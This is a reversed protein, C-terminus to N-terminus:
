VPPPLDEPVSEAHEAVLLPPPRRRLARRLVLWLVGGVVGLVLLWPALAVAVLVLGKGTLVLADISGHFTRSLTTVFPPGEPPVYGKRDRMTVTLTAFEVLKDWRQLQGKMSEIEGRVRSLERMVELRDSTKSGATKELTAQHERLSKETVELNLVRAKLDFYRDTVDDTERQVRRMEGLSKAEAIFDEFSEAPIRLVWKGSRPSGPQGTSESTAIYGKMERLLKMLGQEGKDFDEVILEVQGSYIIKRPEVKEDKREGGAPPAEAAPFRAVKRQAPADQVRADQKAEGPRSTPASEGACGIALSLVVFGLLVRRM